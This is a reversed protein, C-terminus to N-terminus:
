FRECRRDSYETSTEVDLGDNDPPGGPRRRCPWRFFSQVPNVQRLRTQNFVWHFIAAPRNPQSAADRESRCVTIMVFDAITHGNAPTTCRLVLREAIAAM